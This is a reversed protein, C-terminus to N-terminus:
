KPSGMTKQAWSAVQALHSKVEQFPSSSVKQLGDLHPLDQAKVM